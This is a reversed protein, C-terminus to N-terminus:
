SASSVALWFFSFIIMMLSLTGYIIPPLLKYKTITSQSSCENRKMTNESSGEETKKESSPLLLVPPATLSCWRRWLVSLVCKSSSPLSRHFRSFSTSSSLSLTWLNFSFDQEQGLEELPFSTSDSPASLFSCASTIHSFLSRSSCRLVNLFTKLLASMSALESAVTSSSLSHISSFFRPPFFSLLCLPSLSPGPDTLSPDFGPSSPFSLLLLSVPLHM